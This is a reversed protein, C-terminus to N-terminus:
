DFEGVGGKWLADLVQPTDNCKVAYLVDGPFTATVARARAEILHPRLCVVPGAPVHHALLAQASGYSEAMGVEWGVLTLVILIGGGRAGCHMPKKEFAAIHTCRPRKDLAKQASAVFTLEKYLRRKALM